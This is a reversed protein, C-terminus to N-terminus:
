FRVIVRAFCRCNYDCGPNNRRIPEGPKSTIPPTKWTFVKGELVKHWPRVPHNKSGAVCGWMYENLGVDEYRTEKFKSMLLSTEQRALFKAKNVSVGYSRQITAIVSERRNGTFAAKKIQGRLKLTEEETFDRIFLRLNEQWETAIRQRQEATLKPVITIGEVSAHFAKDTKWLARDFSHTLKISDAIEEPLIQALKRDIAELKEQFRNYSSAITMRLQRPQLTSVLHFTESKADWKAGLKKLERTTAASFKGSFHGRSFTIRGAHIAERLAEEDSSNQLSRKPAHLEVMLPLYILKRFAERIAAEAEDFDETSEKIPQLFRVNDM